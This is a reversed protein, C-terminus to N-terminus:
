IFIIERIDEDTALLKKAPFLFIVISKKARKKERRRRGDM